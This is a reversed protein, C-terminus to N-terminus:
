IRMGFVCLRWHRGGMELARYMQIRKAITKPAATACVLPGFLFRRAAGEALWGLLALM